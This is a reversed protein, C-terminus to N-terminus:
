ERLERSIFQGQLKRIYEKYHVHDLYIDSSGLNRTFNFIDIVKINNKKMINKAVEDYTEADRSFRFFGGDRKNHVEDIVPTVGIWIVEKAMIETLRVIEVLNDEYEKLNVQHNRTERDVRIDHLGCNILLIDYTIGAGHQENLYQLVMRSDGANAGIPMDLDKLADELGRKRDYQFRDEIEKKLYPGYHISISDGIVFVKRKGM